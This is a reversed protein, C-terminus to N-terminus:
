IEKVEENKIGMPVKREGKWGKPWVCEKCPEAGKKLQLRGAGRKCWPKKLNINNSKRSESQRRRKEKRKKKPKHPRTKPRLFIIRISIDM